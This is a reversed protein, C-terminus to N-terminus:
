HKIVGIPKLAGELILDIGPEEVRVGCNIDGGIAHPYVVGETAMVFGNPLTSGPHIDPMGIALVVGPLQTAANAQRVVLPGVPVNPGDMIKLNPCCGHM